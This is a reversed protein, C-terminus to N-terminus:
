PQHAPPLPEAALETLAAATSQFCRHLLRTAPGAAVAEAEAETTKKMNQPTDDHLHGTQPVAAIMAVSNRSAAPADSSAASAEAAYSHTNYHGPIRGM